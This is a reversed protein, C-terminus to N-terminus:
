RHSTAAECSRRLTLSRSPLRWCQHGRNSPLHRVDDLGMEPCPVYKAYNLLSHDTVVFFLECLEEGGTLVLRFPLDRELLERLSSALEARGDPHGHDFGSVLVFLERGNQMLDAFQETLAQGSEVKAEFKCQRGLHGFYERRQAATLKRESGAPPMIQFARDQGYSASARDMILRNQSGDLRGDPAPMVVASESFLSEMVEDVWARAQLPSNEPAPKEYDSYDPIELEGDYSPNPGPPEGKLGCLLRAFSERYRDRQSFDVHHISKLFAFKPANPDLVVPVIHFGGNGDSGCSLM